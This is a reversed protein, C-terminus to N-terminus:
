TLAGNARLDNILAALRQSNNKASDSIAQVEAQVYGVSITAGNYTAFTTRVPTGTADAWASTQDQRVFPALVEFADIRSDLTDLTLNQDEQEELIADVAVQQAETQEEVTALRNVTDVFDSLQELKRIAPESFGKDQLERRISFGLGAM